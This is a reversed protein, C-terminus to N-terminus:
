YHNRSFRASRDQQRNFKLLDRLFSLIDNGEDSSSMKSGKLGPLMFNMLHARQHYMLGLSLKFYLVSM